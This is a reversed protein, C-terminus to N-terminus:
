DQGVVEDDPHEGNWLGVLEDSTKGITDRNIITGTFVSPIALTLECM